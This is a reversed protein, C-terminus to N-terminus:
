RWTVASILNGYRVMLKLPRVGDVSSSYKTCSVYIEERVGDGVVGERGEWGGGFDIM